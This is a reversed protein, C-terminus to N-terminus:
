SNAEERRDISYIVFIAAWIFGGIGVLVAPGIHGASTTSAACGVAALLILVIEVNIALESFGKAKVILCNGALAATLLFPALPPLAWIVGSLVLHGAAAIIEAGPGYAFLGWIGGGITAAVLCAAVGKPTLGREPPKVLGEKKPAEEGTVDKQTDSEEAM